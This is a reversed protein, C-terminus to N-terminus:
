EKESREYLDLNDKNIAERLQVAFDLLSRLIIETADKRKLLAKINEEADDDELSKWEEGDLWGIYVGDCECQLESVKKM